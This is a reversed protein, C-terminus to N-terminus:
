HAKAHKELFSVIHIVPIEIERAINVEMKCGKSLEWDKLTVVLDAKMMEAICVRMYDNHIFGGTDIDQFFDHPVLTDLGLANIKEEAHKFEPYNLEPMDTIPGSIYVIPKRNEKGM